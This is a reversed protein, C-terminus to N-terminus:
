SLRWACSLHHLVCHVGAYQSDDVSLVLHHDIALTYLPHRVYKYLGTMVLREVPKPAGSMQSVGLFDSIGTVNLTYLGALAAGAQIALTIIILPYPITYITKDPLAYVLILIPLLSIVAFVNYALRFYRTYYKPYWHEMRQKFHNSAFYSHVFGYDIM